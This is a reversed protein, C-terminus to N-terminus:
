KDDKPVIQYDPRAPPTGNQNPAGYVPVDGAAYYGLFKAVNARTHYLMAKQLISEWLACDTVQAKIADAQVKNLPARSTFANWAAIRRDLEEPGVWAPRKHNPSPQNKLHPPAEMPVRKATGRKSERGSPEGLPNPPVSGGRKPSGAVRTERGGTARQWGESALNLRYINIYGGKVTSRGDIILWGAGVM